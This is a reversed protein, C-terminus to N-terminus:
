AEPDYDAPDDPAEPPAEDPLPIDNSTDRGSVDETLGLDPDPGADIGRFLDFYNFSQGKKTARQETLSIQLYDGPRYDKKLQGILHVNSPLTLVRGDPHRVQYRPVVAGRPDAMPIAPRLWGEITPEEKPDWFEFDRTTRKFTVVIM